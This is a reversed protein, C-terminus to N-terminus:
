CVCVCVCVCVRLRCVGKEGRGENIDAANTCTVEDHDGLSAERQRRVDLSIVPNDGATGTRRIGLRDRAM